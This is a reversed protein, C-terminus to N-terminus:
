ARVEMHVAKQELLEALRWAQRVQVRGVTQRESEQIQELVDESIGTSDQIASEHQLIAHYGIWIEYSTEFIPLRSLRTAKLKASAEAFPTFVTSYYVNV